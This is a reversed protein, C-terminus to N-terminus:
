YDFNDGIPAGDPMALPEPLKFENPYLEFRNILSKMQQYVALDKVNPQNTIFNKVDNLAFNLRTKVQDTTRDSALTNLLYKLTAMSTMRQLEGLYDDKTNKNYITQKVLQAILDEYAPQKNDRAHHEVIRAGREPNLLFRLTTNVSSEAASMPDFTLGTQSKFTERTRPYGVPRPPIKAILSEPLALNEPSLTKLLVDFAKQQKAPDVFQTVTQGDGKIAYTYYLGGVIKSVAEIQYRHLLYIPVLAEEITAMPAGDAISNESFRNLLVKRIALLNELSSTPDEGDEWLHADPHASSEPRADADAMFVLGSKLTENIINNLATKENTGKPFDQYGYIIARKDWEGIGTDYANALSIKGDKDMDIRPFPYDMVSSRNKTSASYNHYLGLTHGIEHAALQRIRALSMKMMEDSAPKGKEYPLLLGEAILFDQRDRLSGLSVQGKIIEGTRPDTISSGYSWGRTSRHIWQILNYRIDMPDVGEPLLMIQFADKYGAAEFAQNWWKAGDMLASKVPEPAGRDLYYIIPKVAESVAANPDKKALRHRNIIRKVIPQDIPTAYDMYDTSYFGSRPDFVRPQYGADPLEIFSQHTHVTVADPDPTVSRIERGRGTGTLTLIAEFETNKPFNKTNDLFVASRTDDVKFSGQNLATLKDGIKHVDRMLFATIDILAKQDQEAEVKFGFIVSSAFAQEVSKKEEINESIARYDYNPQQLLIKPGVKVFKLIKTEGIQGRDLGLDNSGIGYPLTSVYLFEQNFKDVELFVKGNTEDWYFNFYGPYKKFSKVKLDINQASASIINVAIFLLTLIKKM